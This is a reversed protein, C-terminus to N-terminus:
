QMMCKKVNDAIKPDTEAAKKAYKVASAYDGYWDCFIGIRLLDEASELKQQERSVTAGGSASLRLNAFHELINAIQDPPILDWTFRERDNSKVKVSIFKPNVMMDGSVVRGNKMKLPKDYPNREMLRVLYDKIGSVEKFRKEEQLRKEDPVTGLYVTFADQSFNYDAPRPRGAAFDRHAKLWSASLDNLALKKFDDTVAAAGKGDPTAKPPSVPVAVDTAIIESEVPAKVEAKFPEHVLPPPNVSPAPVNPEAAPKENQKV